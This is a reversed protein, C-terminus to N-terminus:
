QLEWFVGHRVMGRAKARVTKVNQVLNGDKEQSFDMGNELIWSMCIKRQFVQQLPLFDMKGEKSKGLTLM